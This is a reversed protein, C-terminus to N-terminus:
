VGYVRSTGNTYAVTQANHYIQTNLSLMPSNSPRDISHRHIFEIELLRLAFSSGLFKVGGLHKKEQVQDELRQEEDDAVETTQPDAEKSVAERHRPHRIFHSCTGNSTTSGLSVVACFCQVVLRAYM